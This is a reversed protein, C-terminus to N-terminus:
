TGLYACNTLGELSDVVGCNNGGVIPSISIKTPNEVKFEESSVNIVYAKASRNSPISVPDGYNGNTPRVYSISKAEKKLSFSKRVEPNEITVVVEEPNLEWIALSFVVEKSEGSTNYCTYEGRINLKDYIGFCAESSQVKEGVLNNIVGWVIGVLVLVLGIMMITAIIGSVGKKNNISM